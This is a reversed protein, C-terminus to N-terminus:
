VVESALFGAAGRLDFFEALDIEVDIEWHRFLDADAVVRRMGKVGPGVLFQPSNRFWAPIEM